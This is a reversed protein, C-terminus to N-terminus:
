TLLFGFFHRSRNACWRSLFLLLDCVGEMIVTMSVALTWFVAMPYAKVAQRPKLAHEDGSGNTRGKISGGVGHDTHALLSTRESPGSEMRHLPGEREHAM